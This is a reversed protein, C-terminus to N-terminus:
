KLWQPAGSAISVVEGFAASLDASHRAVYLVLEGTSWTTPGFIGSVGDDHWGTIRAERAATDMLSLAASARSGAEMPSALEAFEASTLIALGPVPRGTGPSAVAAHTVTARPSLPEDTM